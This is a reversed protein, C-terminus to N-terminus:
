SSAPLAPSATAHFDNFECQTNAIEQIDFDKLTVDSGFLVPSAHGASATVVSPGCQTIVLEQSNFEM